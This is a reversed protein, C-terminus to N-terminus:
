IKKTSTGYLDVIYNVIIRSFRKRAPQNVVKVSRGSKVKKAVM